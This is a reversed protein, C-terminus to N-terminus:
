MKESNILKSIINSLSNMNFPKTILIKIGLEHIIKKTSTTADATLVIIKNVDPINPLLDNINGDPLGLDLIYLKYNNKNIKENGTKVNKAIDLSFGYTKAMSQLLLQNINNDEIYLVDKTYNIYLDDIKYNFYLKFTTGKKLESEVIVDCNMLNINKKVISLGLGNGNIHSVNSCRYFPDFILELDKKNIGIGTDTIEIILKNNTINVSIYVHGGLKNYKISNTLLNSFVTNLLNEDAFISVDKKINLIEITVNNTNCLPNVINIQKTLFKFLPISIIEIKINDRSILLVDDVLNLLLNGSSQIVNNYELVTEDKTHFEILQCYGFIANLPTRLDHSLQSIYMNNKSQIKKNEDMLKFGSILTSCTDLFPQLKTIYDMNYGDKKNAIGVMGIIKEKHYFPMGAFKNLPPHGHPIKSKGGRRPDNLPDNSIIIKNELIALGFLNNLNRFDWGKNINKKYDEKLEDTWAINTIAYSRLFPMDNKDYLIEGIFGYESNSLELLNDLLYDFVMFKSKGQIYYKQAKTIINLLQIDM